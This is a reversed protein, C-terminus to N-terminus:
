LGVGFIGVVMSIGLLILPYFNLSILSNSSSTTPPTSTGTPVDSGGPTGGNTPTNTISGGPSNTGTAKPTFVASSTYYIEFCKDQCTKYDDANTQNCKALCANTADIDSPNPNPVGACKARCDLYDDSTADCYTKICQDIANPSPTYTAPVTTLAPSSSSTTSGSQGYVLNALILIAFFVIISNNKM